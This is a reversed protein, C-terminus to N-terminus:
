DLHPQYEPILRNLSSKVENATLGYINTTLQQLNAQVEPLPRAESSFRMIRPHATPQHREDSHQLEEFLKEGARLGVFEIPIDVDPRFGSLEIMQRALDVIKMPKGM